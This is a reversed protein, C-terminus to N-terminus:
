CRGYDDELRVIDDEGLYDGSQVEILVLDLMGPNGLRHICGAPIYTSENVTLLMQEPGNVVRATGSVVIWHESRHHHMQLSLSAGPRVVIRKVKYGEGEELVTYSGWPRYATRHLEYAAHEESQFTADCAVVAVNASREMVARSISAAPVRAFTVADLEMRRSDTGVAPRSRRVCARVSSWIEPCYRELEAAMSGAACCFMGSNRYCPGALPHERAQGIDHERMIRPARRGDAEIRGLGTESTDPRIGLVVLRGECALAQAELVARAFADQDIILQDTTLVLLLADEGHRATVHLTAAAVAAATDRRFPELIFSIEIGSVNVERYAEEVQFFRERHAVTVVHAVDRLGTGCLFTKQLRNRGDALRVFPGPHREGAVPQPGCGAGGCLIVPILTM